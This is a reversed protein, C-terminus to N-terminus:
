RGEGTMYALLVQEANEQTAEAVIQTAAEARLNVHGWWAAALAVAAFFPCLKWAWAFLSGGSEERLRAALRTEFGFEARSTDREDARAAAFLARLKEEPDNNM